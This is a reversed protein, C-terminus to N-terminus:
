SQQQQQMWAPLVQGRGRGRGTPPLPAPAAGFNFGGSPVSATAGFQFQGGSVAPQLAADDAEDDDNEYFDDIINAALEAAASEDRASDCVRWLADVAGAEEFFQPLSKGCFRGDLQRLLIDILGLAAEQADANSTSLMDTLARAVDDPSTGVFETLLEKQVAMVSDTDVRQSECLEPPVSLADRLAWAIERRIEFTTLPCILVSRLAPLLTQCAKTALHPLPMGADYLLAGILAATETAITSMVGGAGRTCRTILEALISDNTEALELILHAYRGDSAIAMNKLARLCPILRDGTANNFYHLLKSVLSSLVNGEACLFDVAAPDQTLYSVFWCAEIVCHDQSSILAVVDSAVLRPSQQGNQLMQPQGIALVDQCQIGGGRLLNTLAWLTTKVLDMASQGMGLQLCQMLRPLAEMQQLGERARESDGALNGIAFACKECLALDRPNGLQQVLAPLANSSAIVFCWSTPSSAISTPPHGHPSYHEQDFSAALPPPPETAALQNLAVAAKLQLTADGNSTSLISALANALLFALNSQEQGQEGDVFQTLLSNASIAARSSDYRSDSKGGNNAGEPTLLICLRDLTGGLSSVSQGEGGACARVVSTAAEVTEKVHDGDKAYPNERQLGGAADPLAMHRKKAIAEGRKAKRLSTTLAARHSRGGQRRGESAAAFPAAKGPERTPRAPKM